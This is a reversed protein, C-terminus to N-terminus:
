SPPPPPPALKAEQLRMYGGYAIVIALAGGVFAFLYLATNDVLIKLVTFLLLAFCLYADIQSRLAPTGVDVSVNALLLIEMIIIVLVILLNLVGFGHIGNASACFGFNTGAASFCARNWPLFLDILYLLGGVGLIKSATTMRSMDFGSSSSGGQEM